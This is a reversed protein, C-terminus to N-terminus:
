ETAFVDFTKSRIFVRSRYRVSSVRNAGRRPADAVMLVDVAAIEGDSAALSGASNQCAFAFSTIHDALIQTRSDLPLNHDTLTVQQSGSSYGITVWEFPSSLEGDPDGTTAGPGHFSGTIDARIDIHQADTKHIAPLPGGHM